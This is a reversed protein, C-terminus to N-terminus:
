VAAGVADAGHWEGVTAAGAPPPGDGGLIVVRRAAILAFTQGAQHAAVTLAAVAWLVAALIAQALITLARREDTKEDEAQKQDANEGQDYHLAKHRLLKGIFGTM